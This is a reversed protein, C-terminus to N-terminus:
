MMILTWSLDQNHLQCNNNNPLETKAAQNVLEQRRQQIQIKEHEKSITTKGERLKQKIEESANNEIFEVKRITGYSM